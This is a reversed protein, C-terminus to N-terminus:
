LWPSFAWVLATILMSLLGSAAIVLAHRELWRRLRTPRM